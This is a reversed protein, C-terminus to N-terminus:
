EPGSCDVDVTASNFANDDLEDRRIWYRLIKDPLTAAVFLFLDCPRSPPLLDVRLDIPAITCGLSQLQKVNMGTHTAEIGSQTMCVMANAKLTRQPTVGHSQLREERM